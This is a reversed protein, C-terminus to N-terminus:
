NSHAAPTLDASSPEMPLVITTGNWTGFRSDIHITSRRAFRRLEKAVRDVNATSQLMERKVVPTAALESEATQSTVEYVDWNGTNPDQVPAVPKGVTTRSLSLADKVQADTFNCGLEGGSAGTARDLSKATALAPFSAGHALQAVIQNAEPLTAQSIVSLCDTTFLPLNGEYYALAALPNIVAGRRLLLEDVAQGQIQQNRLDSPLGDLVQAGTLTEGSANQCADSGGARAALEVSASIEGGLISEVDPIADTLEKPTVTLHLSALYQNALEFDIRSNLITAALATPATGPVGNMENLLAVQHQVQLLCQGARTDRYGHIATTLEAMSISSGNVTAANAAPTGQCAATFLGLFVLAAPIIRTRRM